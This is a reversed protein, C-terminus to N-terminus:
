LGVGLMLNISPFGIANSEPLQAFTYRANLLMHIMLLEARLSTQIHWGTTKEWYDSWNIDSFNEYIDGSNELDGFLAPLNDNPFLDKLLNISPYISAHTNYGGGVYFGAKALFPISLGLLEKKITYYTSRHIAYLNQSALEDDIYSISSELSQTGFEMSLELMFDKPLADFYIAGLLDITQDGTSALSFNGDQSVDSIETKATFIGGGLSIGGLSFIYGHVIFLFIIQYKIFNM